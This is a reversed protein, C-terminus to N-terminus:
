STIGRQREAMKVWALIDNESLEWPEDPSLAAVFFRKFDQYLLTAKSEGITDCLLALALQAPGSGEYGWAFGTPSHNRLDLRLPLAIPPKDTTIIMVEFSPRPRGQYHKM